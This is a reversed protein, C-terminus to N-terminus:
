GLWTMPPVAKGKHRVEFYLGNQQIGGSHGVSAILEDQQVFDGKRKFLSQNHAYLTMYGQGHDIILLLGYGKLWDSFVIKGPYVAKVSAGEDAFFTVGQKMTQMAHSEIHVPFPLKKRMQLFPVTPKEISQATLNKLIRALNHKNRKVELLANEKTQIENNLSVMLTKQYDKHQELSQQHQLLEQHLHQNEALEHLLKQNKDDLNKRTGDIEDILHQRSQILYQYYTLIRSLAYPNEQNILWKLPQYDGMQYRTRLHKALHQQQHTLQLNLADVQAQLNEVNREAQVVAKQLSKLKNVGEGIQKETNALEKNLGRRKVNASDLTQQLVNIQADLQKLQTQTQAIPSAAILSSNLLLSCILTSKLRAKNTIM